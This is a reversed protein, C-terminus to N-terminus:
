ENGDGQEAFNPKISAYKDLAEQTQTYYHKGCDLTDIEQMEEDTLTFDYLDNNEQIHAVNKSGPIVSTGYQTHWRLIIQAPTKGYKESLKKFIPEEQMAHDGHGLPYWAEIIMNYPKLFNRLDKQVYYPHCEVTLLQPTIECIDLIEQIKEQTFNSLGLAKVKGEKYAKEMMKYAHVYDCVPQHLILMDIYNTDLRELTEEIANANDYVSPWLKTTLFIDKRDVGSDKIARGVAKENMYGNATDIHRVGVKLADSVANYAEKPSMLFTGLGNKPMQIGNNLTFYEM